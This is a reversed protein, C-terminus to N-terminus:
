CSTRRKRCEVGATRQRLMDPAAKLPANIFYPQPPFLTRRLVNNQLTVLHQGTQLVRQNGVVAKVVAGAIGGIWERQDACAGIVPGVASGRRHRPGPALHLVVDQPVSGVPLVLPLVCWTM